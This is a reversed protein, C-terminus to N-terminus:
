AEFYNPFFHHILADCTMLRMKLFSMSQSTLCSPILYVVQVPSNLCPLHPRFPCYSNSYQIYYSLPWSKSLCQLKCYFHQFKCIFFLMKSVLYNNGRHLHYLNWIEENSTFIINVNKRMLEAIHFKLKLHPLCITREVLSIPITLVSIFCECCNAVIVLMYM